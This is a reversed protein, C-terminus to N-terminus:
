STLSRSMYFYIIFVNRNVSPMTRVNCCFGNLFVRYENTIFSCLSTYITFNQKYCGTDRKYLDCSLKGGCNVFILLAATRKESVAQYKVSSIQANSTHKMMSLCIM